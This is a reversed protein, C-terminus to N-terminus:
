YRLARPEALSVVKLRDLGERHLDHPIKIANCVSFEVNHFSMKM